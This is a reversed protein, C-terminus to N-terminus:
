LVIIGRQPIYRFPIFDAYSLYVEKQFWSIDSLMFIYLSSISIKQSSQQNQDESLSRHLQPREVTEQSSIITVTANFWHHHHHSVITQKNTKVIASIYSFSSFPLSFSSLPLHLQRRLVALVSYM